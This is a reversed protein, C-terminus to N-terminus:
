CPASAPGMHPMCASSQSCVADRRPQLQLPEGLSCGSARCCLDQFIEQTHDPGGGSHLVTMSLCALQFLPDAGILPQFPEEHKAAAVILCASMSCCTNGILPLAPRGRPVASKWSVPMGATLVFLVLGLISFLQLPMQLQTQFCQCPGMSPLSRSVIENAYPVPQTWAGYAALAQM